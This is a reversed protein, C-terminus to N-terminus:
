GLGGLTGQLDTLAIPDHNKTRTQGRPHHLVAMEFGLQLKTIRLILQHDPINRVLPVRRAKTGMGPAGMVLLIGKGPGLFQQRLFPLVVRFRTTM